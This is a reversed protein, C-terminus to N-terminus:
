MLYKLSVEPWHNEVGFSFYHNRQDPNLCLCLTIRFSGPSPFECCPNLALPRCKVKVNRCLWWGDTAPGSQVGRRQRCEQGGETRLGGCLPGTSPAISPVSDQFKPPQCSVHPLSTAGEPNVELPTTVGGGLLICSHCSALQM